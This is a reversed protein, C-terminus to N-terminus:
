NETYPHKYKDQAEFRVKDMSKGEGEYANRVPVIEDVPTPPARVDSSTVVKSLGRPINNANTFTPYHITPSMKINNILTKSNYINKPKQQYIM